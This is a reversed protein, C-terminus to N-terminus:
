SRSLQHADKEVAGRRQLQRAVLWCILAWVLGATWGALVDSPWHVGMYIRSIGVLFTLLLAVSLFYLKLLRHKVLRTLLSGITLYVVASLMSHGSPFSATQVIDGHSILDPRARAVFYKITTSIIMGGITAALVLWMASFKRELFLYGAVFFTVLSLVVISGLATIDRGVEQLWEPGRHEGVFRIVQEDFQQTDGEHVDDLLEIFGWSGVVVVLVVGLVVPGHSGLWALFKLARDVMDALTDPHGSYHISDIM